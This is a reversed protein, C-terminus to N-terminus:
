KFPLYVTKAGQKVAKLVQKRNRKGSYSVHVWQPQQDTGFEWILQDFVLNDKIWHFEEATLPLDLAEGLCHQSTAVYKGGVMKHAGGIAKNLATSRYGSNIKIAKGRFARLPEFVKEALLKAAALHEEPMKNSIGRRTATPSAEFEAISLHQSLKSMNTTKLYKLSNVIWAGNSCM